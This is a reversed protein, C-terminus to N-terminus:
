GTVDPRAFPCEGTVHLTRGDVPLGRVLASRAGRGFSRSFVDRAGPTSGISLRVTRAATQLFDWHFRAEDGPLLAGDGPLSLVPGRRLSLSVVGRDAGFTGGPSHICRGDQSVVAAGPFGLMNIGFDSDLDNSVVQLSGDRRDRRMVAVGAMFVAMGDVNASPSGTILLENGGPLMALRSNLSSVRRLGAVGDRYSTQLVPVGTRSDVKFHGLYDNLFAKHGIAYLHAGDPSIALSTIRQFDDDSLVGTIFELDGTATDRRFVALSDNEPDADGFGRGGAVYVFRGNPSVLLEEARRIAVGEVGDRKVQRLTLEGSDADRQFVAISADRVDSGGPSGVLYLHDGDPDFRLRQPDDLGDVGDVGQRYTVVPTLAGNVADRAFVSLASEGSGNLPADGSATYVHRGDPSVAVTRPDDLGLGVPDADLDARREVQEISGTESDTALVYLVGSETIGDGNTLAYLNKGDPSAALDVITTFDGPLTDGVYLAGALSVARPAPAIGRDLFTSIGNQNVVLARKGDPTTALTINTFGGGAIGDGIVDGLGALGDVHSEIFAIAGSQTDRSLVTVQGSGQSQHAVLLASGNAALAMEQPSFLPVGDAGREVLAQFDLNGTTADRRYWAVTGGNSDSLNQLYLDNGDDSIILREPRRLEEFGPEGRKFSRPASLAGTSRSRDFIIIADDDDLFNSVYVHRGDPSVALHRVNTMDTVGSQVEVQALTGTRRNRRYVTIRNSGATYFSHGDASFAHVDFSVLGDLRQVLELRGSRRDRAYALLRRQISQDRGSAYVHAGDPSISVQDVSLEAVFPREPSAPVTTLTDILRVRGNGPNVSITRLEGTGGNSFDRGIAQYLHRGDPSLAAARATGNPAELATFREFQLQCCGGSAHAPWTLVIFLTTLLHALWGPQRYAREVSSLRFDKNTQDLDRGRPLARHKHGGIWRLRGGM